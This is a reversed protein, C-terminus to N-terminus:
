ISNNHIEKFHQGVAFAVWMDIFQYNDRLQVFAKLLIVVIDTDVTRVITRQVGKLLADIIHICVRADAEEHDCEPM